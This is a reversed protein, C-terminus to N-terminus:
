LRIKTLKTEILSGNKIGEDIDKLLYEFYEDKMNELENDRDRIISALHRLLSYNITRTKRDKYILELLLNRIIYELNVKQEFLEKKEDYSLNGKEKFNKYETLEGKLIKKWRLVKNRRTEYDSLKNMTDEDFITPQLNTYNDNLLSEILKFDDVRKTFATIVADKSLYMKDEECMVPYRKLDPLKILIVNSSDDIHYKERLIYENQTNLLLSDMEELFSARELVRYVKYTYRSKYTDYDTGLDKRYYIYRADPLMNYRYFIDNDHISEKTNGEFTIVNRDNPDIEEVLLLRKAKEMKNVIKILGKHNTCLVPKTKGKLDHAFKKKLETMNKSSSYAEDIDKDIKIIRFEKYTLNYRDINIDGYYIGTNKRNFTKLDHLKKRIEHSNKCVFTKEDLSEMFYYVRDLKLNNVKM